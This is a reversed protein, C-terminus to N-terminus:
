DRTWHKVAFKESKGDGSLSMEGVKVTITEFLESDEPPQHFEWSSIYAKKMEITYTESHKSNQLVITGEIYQLRGDENTAFKFMESTPSNKARRLLQVTAGGTSGDYYGRSSQPTDISVTVGHVEELEVGALKVSKPM